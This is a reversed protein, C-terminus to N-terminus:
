LSIAYVEFSVSSVLTHGNAVQFKGIDTDGNILKNYNHKSELTCVLGSLSLLVKSHKLAVCIYM